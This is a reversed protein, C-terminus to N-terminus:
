QLRPRSPFHHSIRRPDTKEYFEETTIDYGEYYTREDILIPMPIVHIGAKKEKLPMIGSNSDTMIAIESM